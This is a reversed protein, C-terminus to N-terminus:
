GRRTQKQRRFTLVAVTGLETRRIQWAQMFAAFVQRDKASDGMEILKERLAAREQMRCMGAAVGGIVDAPTVGDDISSVSRKLCGAFDADEPQTTAVDTSVPLRKTGDTASQCGALLVAAVFLALTKM